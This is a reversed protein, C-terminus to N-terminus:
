KTKSVGPTPVERGACAPKVGPTSTPAEKIKTIELLATNFSPVTGKISILNDQDNVELVRLNKVTIRDTGFRGPMKKGKWVRGPDTGQGISGISRPRDSQGHTRPGGKFGWRKMVGAFGRGKSIGVVKVKDGAKLVDSAKIQDGVKLTPEKLIRIERIFKPATKLKRGSSSRGKTSAKLHGLLPKSLSKKSKRGFACQISWYGDKEVSKIQTVTLPTSKIKTVVLRNGKDDFAQATKLKTAFFTNIM